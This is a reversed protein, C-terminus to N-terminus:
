KMVPSFYRRLLYLLSKLCAEPLRSHPRAPVHASKRTSPTKFPGLKQARGPNTLMDATSTMSRADPDTLSIQHDPTDKLQLEIADLVEMREGVKTLKDGLQPVLTRCCRQIVTLGIWSPWTVRSARMGRNAIGGSKGVAFNHERSNMAKFKSGDIAVVAHSFVKM